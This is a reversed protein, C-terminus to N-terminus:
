PTPQEQPEKEGEKALDEMRQRFTTKVRELEASVKRKIALEDIGRLSPPLENGLIRDLDGFLVAMGTSLGERVLGMDIVRRRDEELRIRDRLTATKAKEKIWDVGLDVESGEAFVWRLLKALTVRGNTTFADCGAKKAKKLAALPIGTAGSCAALSPYTPLGKM